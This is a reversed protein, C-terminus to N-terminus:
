RKPVFKWFALVVLIIVGILVLNLEDVKFTVEYKDAILYTGM